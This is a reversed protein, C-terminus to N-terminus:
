IRSFDPLTVRNGKGLRLVTNVYKVGTRSHRVPHFRLTGVLRRHDGVASAHQRHGSDSWCEMCRAIVAPAVCFADPKRALLHSAVYCPPLERSLHLQGVVPRIGSSGSTSVIARPTFSATAPRVMSATPSGRGSTNRSTVARVKAFRTRPVRIVPAFRRALCMTM